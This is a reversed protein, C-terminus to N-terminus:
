FGEKQWEIREPDKSRFIQWRFHPEPRPPRLDQFSYGFKELITGLTAWFIIQTMIITTITWGLLSQQTQWGDPWVDRLFSALEMMDLLKGRVMPYFWNDVLRNRLTM